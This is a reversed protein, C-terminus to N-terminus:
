RILDGVLVQRDVGTPKRRQGAATEDHPLDPEHLLPRTTPEGRIQRLHYRTRALILRATPESGFWGVDIRLRTLTPTRPDLWLDVVKHREDIFALRRRGDGRTKESLIVLGLEVAASHIAAELQELSALEASDLKGMSWVSTGTDLAGGAVGVVSAAGVLTMGACGGSCCAILLVLLRLAGMLGTYTVM